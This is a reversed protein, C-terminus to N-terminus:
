FVFRIASVVNDNMEAMLVILNVMVFQNVISVFVKAPPRAVIFNILAVIAVIKKM